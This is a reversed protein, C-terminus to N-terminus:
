VVEVLAASAEHTEILPQAELECAGHQRLRHEVVALEVLHEGVLVHEHRERRHSLCEGERTLSNLTRQFQLGVELRQNRIAGIVVMNAMTDTAGLTATAEALRASPRAATGKGIDLM